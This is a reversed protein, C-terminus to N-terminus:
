ARRGDPPDKPLVPTEPARGVAIEHGALHDRDIAACHVRSAPSHKRAHRSRPRLSQAQAPSPRPVPPARPPSRPSRRRSRRLRPRLRSGFAPPRLGAPSAFVGSVGARPLPARPACRRLPVASSAPRRRARPAVPPRSPRRVGRAAPCARGPPGCPSPAALGVVLRPVGGRRVLGRAARRLSRRASPAAPPSPLSPASRLTLLAVAARASGRAFPASFSSAPLGIDVLPRPRRDPSFSPWTPVPTPTTLSCTIASGLESSRGCAIAAPPAPVSVCHCHRPFSDAAPSVTRVASCPRM